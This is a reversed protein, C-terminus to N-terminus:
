KSVRKGLWGECFFKAFYCLKGVLSLLLCTLESGAALLHAAGLYEGTRPIFKKHAVKRRHVSLLVDGERTASQM